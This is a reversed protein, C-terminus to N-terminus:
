NWDKLTELILRDDELYNRSYLIEIGRGTDKVDYLLISGDLMLPIEHNKVQKWDKDFDMRYPKSASYSDGPHDMDSSYYLSYGNNTALLAAPENDGGNSVLVRDDRWTKGQDDSFRVRIESPGKDYSELEYVFLITNGDAILDADEINQDAKIIDPLKKLNFSDDVEYLHITYTGNKQDPDGNNIRGNVTTYALLYGKGNKILVPDIKLDSPKEASGDFLVHDEKISGDENFVLLQLKGYKNSSLIANDEDVAYIWNSDIAYSQNVTGDANFAYLTIKGKSRVNSFILDNLIKSDYFRSKELDGGVVVKKTEPNKSCGASPFFLLLALALLAYTHKRM